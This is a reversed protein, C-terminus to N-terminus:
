FLLTAIGFIVPLIGIFDWILHVLYSIAINKTKVYILPFVISGIGITLILDAINFGYASIHALAFILQSVIIGVIIAGKRGIYKYTFIMPLVIGIFKFLEEGVLQIITSLITIMPAGVYPKHSQSPIGFVKSILTTIYMVLFVSILGLIIIKMDKKEPKRFIESLNGDLSYWVAILPIFCSLIAKLLEMDGFEIFPICFTLCLGFFLVIIKSSGINPNGNYFPIDYEKDEFRFYDKEM